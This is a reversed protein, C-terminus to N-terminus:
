VRMLQEFNARVIKAYADRWKQPLLARPLHTRAKMKSTGNQLYKAYEARNTIVIRYSTGTKEIRYVYGARLKGSRIMKRGGDKPPQWPAGYLDRGQAFQLDVQQATYDRIQQASRQLLQEPLRLLNLEIRRLVDSGNGM